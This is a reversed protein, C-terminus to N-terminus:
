FLAHVLAQSAGMVQERYLTIVGCLGVLLISLIMEPHPAHCLRALLYDLTYVVLSLAFACLLALPGPFGLVRWATWFGVTAVANALDRAYGFWWTSESPNTSPYARDRRRVIALLWVYVLATALLLVAGVATSGLM